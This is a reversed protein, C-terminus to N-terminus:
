KLDVLAQVIRQLEPMSALVGGGKVGAITAHDTAIKAKEADDATDIDGGTKLRIFPIGALDVWYDNVVIGNPYQILALNTPDSDVKIQMQPQNSSGSIIRGALNYVYYKM